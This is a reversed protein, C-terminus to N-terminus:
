KGHDEEEYICTLMEILAEKNVSYRKAFTVAKELEGEIRKLIEEKLLEESKQKVFCGKGPILKLYGMHELEEYARKTTIVSIRLDKALARISPLLQGGELEGTLIQAKIAEVIQEYIPTESSNSIVIQM